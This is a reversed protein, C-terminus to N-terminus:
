ERAGGALKRGGAGRTPQQTPPEVGALDGGCHARAVCADHMGVVQLGREAPTREGGGAGGTGADHQMQVLVAENAGDANAEGAAGLARATMPAVRQGTYAQVTTAASG